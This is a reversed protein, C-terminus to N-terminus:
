KKEEKGTKAGPRRSLATPHVENHCDICSIDGSRIQEIQDGHDEVYKKAMTSHCQM